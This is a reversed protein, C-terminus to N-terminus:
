QGPDGGGGGLNWGSMIDRTSNPSATLLPEVGALLTIASVHGPDSGQTTSVMIADGPKLDTLSIAPLNDIMSGIDGGGRGGRGGRGAFGAGEPPAAEAQGAAGRAGPAYRRALMRAMQEPLKRMTAEHDVKIVVSKKSALDKVTMENRAPDISSVTAAMQRFSGFVIQEAQISNGDASKNGLVRLQDGEKVEGFSSSVADAFRASDSSYRHWTTKENPQVMYTHAGSKITIAKAAGDVATVTGTTGRRKWDEQEKQQVSVIDGHTMVLVATAQWANGSPAPGVIVARDGSALSSLPVKSGKRPDTEGPPIRLVLTRGTTSVDLAEGKDSKLSLRNASADVATITGAVQSRPSSPQTQALGAMAVALCVLLRM